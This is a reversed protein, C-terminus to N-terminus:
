QGTEGAPTGPDPPPDAAPPMAGADATATVTGADPATDAAPPMAGGDATATVTVDGEGVAGVPLPGGVPGVPMPGDATQQNGADTARPLYGRAITSCVYNSPDRLETHKETVADLLESAAYDPLTLLARVAEDTLKLGMSEAKKM